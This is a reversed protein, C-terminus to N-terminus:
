IGWLSKLGNTWGQIRLFQETSRQVRIHAVGHDLIRKRHGTGPPKVFPRLFDDESIGTEDHWWRREEDPDQGFHLHLTCRVQSAPRQLYRDSWALFLRILSPDSNSFRVDNCTKSGESWYALLGAPFLPDHILAALQEEADARIQARRHAHRARVEPRSTGPYAKRRLRERADSSLELNRVWGSLTSRNVDLHRSIESYSFGLQRLRIAQSRLEKRADM